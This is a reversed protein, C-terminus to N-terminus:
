LSVNIASVVSRIGAIGINADRGCGWHTGRSEFRISTYAYADTGSGTGVSHEHFEEIQFSEPLLPLIAKVFADIPGNGSADVSFPKGAFTGSAHCVEEGTETSINKLSSVVLPGSQTLYTKEFLERVASSSLENGTEDARKQVVKAFQPHM